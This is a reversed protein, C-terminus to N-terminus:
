KRKKKRRIEKKKGMEEKKDQKEGKERGRKVNKRGFLMPQYGGGGPPLTNELIYLVTTAVAVSYQGAM